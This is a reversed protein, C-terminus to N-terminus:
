YYFNIVPKKILVKDGNINNNTNFDEPKILSKYHLNSSLKFIISDYLKKDKVM